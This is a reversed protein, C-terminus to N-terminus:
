GVASVRAGRARRLRGLPPVCHIATLFFYYQFFQSSTFTDGMHILRVWEVIKLILFVLGFGATLLAERRAREFRGARAHQVCRAVAWSSSLLVITDLVGLWLLLHSQGLLFALEHQTRNFLYVCFYATFVLSEFLVFFWIDRGGPVHESSRQESAQVVERETTTVAGHVGGLPSRSRGRAAPQAHSGTGFDERLIMNRLLLIFAGHLGFVAVQDVLRDRRELRLSRCPLDVVTRGRGRDARQLSQSLRVLGSVRNKDLLIAADLDPLRHLLLVAMTGSFSLFGLDYLWGCSRRIAIRGSCGVTMAVCIFLFGPVASVAYLILYSYAFARSVSM